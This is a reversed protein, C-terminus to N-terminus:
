SHKKQSNVGKDIIDIVKFFYRWAEGSKCLEKTDSLAREVIQRSYKKCVMFVSGRKNKPINLDQIVKLALEQWEYAPAKKVPTKKNMLEKFSKFNEKPKM